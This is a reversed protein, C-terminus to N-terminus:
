FPLCLSNKPKRRGIKEVCFCSKNKWEFHFAAHTVSSSSSSDLELTNERWWWMRCSTTHPFELVKRKFFILFTYAFLLYFTSVWRSFQLWNKSKWNLGSFFEVIMVLDYIFNLGTHRCHYIVSYRHWKSEHRWNMRTMWDVPCLFSTSATWKGVKYPFQFFLLKAGDFVYRHYNESSLEEMFLSFFQWSLSFAWSFISNILESSIQCIFFSGFNGLAVWFHNMMMKLEEECRFVRRIHVFNLINLWLAHFSIFKRFFKEYQCIKMIKM